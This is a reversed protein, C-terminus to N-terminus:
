YEEHQINLRAGPRDRRPRHVVGRAGRDDPMGIVMQGDYAILIQFDAVSDPINPGPLKRLPVRAASLVPLLAHQKNTIDLDHIARLAINGGVYPRLSEIV